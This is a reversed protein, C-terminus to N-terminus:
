TARVAGGYDVGWCIRAQLSSLLCVGRGESRPTVKPLETKLVVM